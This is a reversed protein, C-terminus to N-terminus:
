IIGSSTGGRAMDVLLATSGVTEGGLVEETNVRWGTSRRRDWVGEGRRVREGGGEIM